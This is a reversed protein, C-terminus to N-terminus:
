QSVNESGNQYRQRLDESVKEEGVFAIYRKVVADCYKPDLEIGFCRRELSEAAILTSGSGLFLDLVADKRKSSNRIARAPLAVPKQTPHVYDKTVDRKIQWLTSENNPGFWNHAGNEKKWGYLCFETQQNYDGFGIAFREKAWTIVCSVHFGLETLMGHMPGFQRHGNWIYIPAGIELYPAVNQFIKRLWKEYEEQTMNDSYIREWLKHKKPRSKANPRNGGYYDVNYPPDTQLLNIKENGLLKKLDDPNSSDGCLIKHPGLEIIDGKKTVPEKIGELTKEFHFNDEKDEAQSDFLSSIEPLDFGTLEINFDPINSLEQLLNVLKEEDWDGRVRNLILNLQKEKELSLNVISVEIEEVGQELLIKFRQHGSVLNGTKENWVIIEVYGFEGISRKLKEYDSDGPKLDLRPNYSAPNISSVKIRRITISRSTFSRDTM